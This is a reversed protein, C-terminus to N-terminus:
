KHNRQFVIKYADEFFSNHGNIVHLKKIPEIEQKLGAIEFDRYSRLEELTYNYNGKQGETQRMRQHIINVDTNLYINCDFLSIFSHRHIKQFNGKNDRYAYHCDCLVVDNFKNQTELYRKFSKTVIEQEEPIICKIDTNEGYIEHFIEMTKIAPKIHVSRKNKLDCFSQILTTKGSRQIGYIAVLMKFMGIRATRKNLEIAM